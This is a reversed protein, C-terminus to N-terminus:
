FIMIQFLDRIGLAFGLIIVIIKIWNRFNKDEISNDLVYLLLIAIIFKVIFFSWVGGTLDFLLNPVVHQEAHHYIQVGVFTSSADFLQSLIVMKNFLPKTLKALNGLSFILIFIVFDIGLIQAAATFNIFQLQTFSIGALAFGTSFLYSQYPIKTKKELSLSLLLFGLTVSFLLLYIVPSVFFWSSLYGSDRLVRLISGLFIFPSLALAFKGDIKIKLPKLLCHYIIMIAAVLILAYVLTNYISYGSVNLVPEAFYTQFFENFM